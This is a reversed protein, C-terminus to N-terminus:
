ARPWWALGFLRETNDRAAAVVAAPEMAHAEALRDVAYTMLTPDNREGQRPKPALVRRM